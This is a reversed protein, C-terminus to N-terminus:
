TGVRGTKTAEAIKAEMARKDDPRNRYRGAAVDNYFTAIETRSVLPASDDRNTSVVVTGVTRPAPSLDPASPAPAPAPAPSGASMPGFCADFMAKTRPVSMKQIADDLLAQRQVGTLPDSEALWQLWQQSANLQEWDPRAENLAQWFRDEATQAATAAAAQVQGQIPQLHKQLEAAVREQVLADIRADTAKTGREVLDVVGDGFRNRDEETFVQQVPAPAAPAPSPKAAKLTALETTLETLKTTLDQLTSRQADVQGKMALYNNRWYVADGTEGDKTSATAPPPSATPGAPAPAPAPEPAPAPAPAPGPAAPPEAPTQMEKAIQNAAAIQTRVQQPLVIDTM